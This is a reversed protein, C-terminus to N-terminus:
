IFAVIEVSGSGSIYLYTLRAPGGWAEQNLTICNESAVAVENADTYIKISGSARVLLYHSQAGLPIKQIAPTAEIVKISPFGTIQSSM